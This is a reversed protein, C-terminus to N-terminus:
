GMMSYSRVHKSLDRKNSVVLLDQLESGYKCFVFVQLISTKMTSIAGSQLIAGLGNSVPVHNSSKNIM